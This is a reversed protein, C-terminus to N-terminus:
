RRPSRPRPTPYAVTFRELERAGDRTVQLRLPAVHIAYISRDICSWNQALLHLGFSLGEIMPVRCHYPGVLRWLWHRQLPM